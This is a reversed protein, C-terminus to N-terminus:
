AGVKKGVLCLCVFVALGVVLVLLKGAGHPKKLPIRSIELVAIGCLCGPAYLSMSVPLFTSLILLFPLLISILTVPLGTYFERREKRDRLIEQVNFFGLRIVSSLLILAAAVKSFVNEQALHLVLCAPLAGFAVLDCLSDIQIGFLKEEESRKCKQAVAGDFMDCVGSVMLCILAAFVSNEGGGLVFSIGFTASILSFYTLLVSLNYFGIMFIDKGLTKFAARPLARWM